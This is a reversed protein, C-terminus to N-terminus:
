RRLTTAPVVPLNLNLSLQRSRAFRALLKKTTASRFIRYAAQGRNQVMFADIQEKVAEYRETVAEVDFLDTGDQECTLSLMYLLHFVGEIIWSEDYSQKLRANLSLVARRRDEDIMKYVRWM